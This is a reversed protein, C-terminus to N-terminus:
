VYSLIQVIKQADSLLTFSNSLAREPDISNGYILLGCQLFVVWYCLHPQYVRLRLLDHCPETETSADTSCKGEASTRCRLIVLCDALRPFELVPLPVLIEDVVPVLELSVRVPGSYPDRL